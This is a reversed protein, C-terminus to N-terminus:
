AASINIESIDVHSILSCNNGFFNNEGFLKRRETRIVKDWQHSSLKIFFKSLGTQTLWATKNRCDNQKVISSTANQALFM